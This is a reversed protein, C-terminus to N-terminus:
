VASRGNLDGPQQVASHPDSWNLRFFIKLFKDLQAFEITM